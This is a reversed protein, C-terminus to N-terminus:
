QAIEWITGTSIMSEHNDGTSNALTRNLAFTRDNPGSSRIALSFVTPSLSGAITAYQLFWNSPTSDENQDYFASAIGSIRTNGLASNYGPSSATTILANDRHVLFVADQHNEGNLMWQMVLLSTTFKPTISINLDTIRNGDGSQSVSYSARVDTRFYRAQVVQGPSTFAQPTQTALSTGTQMTIIGSGTKQTINLAEVNSVRLTAM